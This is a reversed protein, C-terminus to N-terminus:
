DDRSEGEAEAALKRAVAEASAQDGLKAARCLSWCFWALLLWGVIGAVTIWHM